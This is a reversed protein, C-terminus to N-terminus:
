RCVFFVKKYLGQLVVVKIVKFMQRIVKLNILVLEFFEILISEGYLVEKIQKSYVQRDKFFIMVLDFWIKFGLEIWIKFQVM